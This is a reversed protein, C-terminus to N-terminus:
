GSPKYVLITPWGWYIAGSHYYPRGNYLGFNIGLTNTLLGGNYSYPFYKESIRGTKRSLDEPITPDILTALQGVNPLQWINFGCLQEENVRNVFNGSFGAYGPDYDYSADFQHLGGDNTKVEWYYGTDVDYVCSWSTASDSLFEGIWSVKIFRSDTVQIQQAWLAGNIDGVLLVRGTKRGIVQVTDGLNSISEIEAEGSPIETTPDATIAYAVPPLHTFSNGNSAKAVFTTATRMGVLRVTSRFYPRSATVLIPESEAKTYLDVFKLITNTTSYYQDPPPSTISNEGKLTAPPGSIIQISIGSPLLTQRGKRDYAKLDFSVTNGHTTIVATQGADFRDACSMIDGSADICVDYVDGEEGWYKVLYVLKEGLTAYELPTTLEKSALFIKYLAKGRVTLSEVFALKIAENVGSCQSLTAVGAAIIAAPRFNEFQQAAFEAGDKSKAISDLDINKITQESIKLLCKNIDPNNKLLSIDAIVLDLIISGLNSVRTEPSQTLKVKFPRGSNDTAKTKTSYFYDVIGLIFVDKAASVVRETISAMPIPVKGNPLESDDSDYSILEWGIPTSNRILKKSDIDVKGTVAALLTFEGQSLEIPNGGYVLPHARTTAKILEPKANPETIQASVKLLANIVANDELPPTGSQLAISISNLLEPYALTGAAALKFDSYKSKVSDLLTINLIGIATEEPSVVLKGDKYNGIYLINDNVDAYIVSTTSNPAATITKSNTEFVGYDTIAKAAKSMAASPIGEHFVVPANVEAVRQASSGSASAGTENARERNGGGCGTLLALIALTTVVSQRTMKLAEFYKM